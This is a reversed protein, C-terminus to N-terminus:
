RLTPAGSILGHIASAASTAIAIAAGSTARAFMARTATPVPTVASTSAAVGSSRELAVFRANSAAM